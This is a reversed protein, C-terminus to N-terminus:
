LARRSQNGAAELQSDSRENLGEKSKMKKIGKVFNPCGEDDVSPRKSGVILSFSSLNDNGESRAQQKWRRGKQSSSLKLSRSDDDEVQVIHGHSVVQANNSGGM